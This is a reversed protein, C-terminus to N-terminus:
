RGYKETYKKIRAESKKIRTKMESEIFKVLTDLVYEMHFTGDSRPSLPNCHKFLEESANDSGLLYNFQKKIEDSIAFFDAEKDVDIDNFYNLVNECRKAIDLDSPNWWFGGTVEKGSNVIEIWERDNLTIQRAM